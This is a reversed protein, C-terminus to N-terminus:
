FRTTGMSRKNRLAVSARYNPDRDMKKAIKLISEHHKARATAQNHIVKRGNGSKTEETYETLAGSYERGLLPTRTRTMSQPASTLRQPVSRKAMAQIKRVNAFTDSHESDDGEMGVIDEGEHSTDKGTFQELQKRLEGDEHLDRILADPDLKAAIMWLKLPIPVGKESAMQLLEMMNDEGSAELKKNWHLTPMELNDRDAANFLFDLVQGPKAKNKAGEKYLDNTVAILPFLKRYFVDHTLQSRYANQSELFTSYAAEAAAYSADGSLFSESIGLARLKYAVLIDGMDTWKWFDGGPRLDVTQVSNRTSLWGGLPDLEAMQFQQVLAMLEKKNPVWKDDGATIHTMSRQRRQAEVLTGKFMQKEILYMPLIRHLYSVYARDTLKRRGVFLTCVPDLKFSGSRLMERFSAPMQALYRQAYPSTDHLFQQTAQGVRVNITPDVNYFPSPMVACQLADHILTDIFQKSKPDFVLSGCFFGDVLYAVSIEPMMQAINL